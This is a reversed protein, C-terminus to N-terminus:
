IKRFIYDMFLAGGICECLSLLLYELTMGINQSLMLNGSPSPSKAANLGYVLVAVASFLIIHLFIILFFVAKKDMKDFAKLM